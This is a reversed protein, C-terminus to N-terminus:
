RNYNFLNHQAKKGSLSIIIQKNIASADEEFIRNRIPNVIEKTTFLQPTYM